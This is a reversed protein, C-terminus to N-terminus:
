PGGMRRLELTSLCALVCIAIALAGISGLAVYLVIAATM